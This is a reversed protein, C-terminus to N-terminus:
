ARRTHDFSGFVGAVACGSNGSARRSFCEAARGPWSLARQYLCTGAGNELPVLRISPVGRRDLTFNCQADGACARAAALLDPLIRGTAVSQCVCIRDLSQARAFIGITRHSASRRRSSDLAGTAEARGHRPDIAGIAENAIVMVDAGNLLEKDFSAHHNLCEVGRYKGPTSTNALHVISHGLGALEAALYSIAAETGGVARLYPTEVTYDVVTRHVFIIRLNLRQDAFGCRHHPTDGGM